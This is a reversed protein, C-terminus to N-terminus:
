DKGKLCNIVVLPSVGLAEAIESTSYGSSDMSFIKTQKSNTLSSTAKPTAKQRLTDIDMHNIIQILRSESIAGAQIAAWERDTVKIPSRQAGVTNRAATLAQQNAKKLESSTMDPNAQKKATVTANAIAQAQRERPANKLAVNLQSLLSDVEKQYTTKSAASYPIKGTYVMEKRADNAMAKMKNAYVAYARESPTRMDSVLTNADRAEGMKTSQQTRVRIQGSKKDVFEERVSKYILTGETLGPDYWEKGKQNIKPTGVRKLVPTESKARSILTAAGESYKGDKDVAGQYTKKLSAIGNELESRKYDLGHKEADIVVMSHRVARALESQTAGKLTMDTILNSVKGM